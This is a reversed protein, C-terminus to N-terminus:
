IVKRSIRGSITIFVGGKSFIYNSIIVIAIGVIGAFLYLRSKRELILPKDRKIFLLLSCILGSLHIFILTLLIGVHQQLSGNLFIVFSITLGTFVSLAYNM